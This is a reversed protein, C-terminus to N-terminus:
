ESEESESDSSEIYRSNYKFYRITSFVMLIAWGYAVNGVNMSLLLIFILVDLTLFGTFCCAFFLVLKLIYSILGYDQIGSVVAHEEGWSDIGKGLWTDSDSLDLYKFTDLIINVRSAASNDTEKVLETDGTMAVNFVSIARNLPEYDIYPVIMYFLFGAIFIFFAYQKRMFYLSLIGLGVFATGSGMSLMTYLFAIIPWKYEAYLEKLGLIRRYKYETLKLLAYFYVTLIRAAHSPEIALSNLRFLALFDQGMLNVFPMYRLGVLLCAQQLVLCVAYGYIVFKVVQIFGDLTFARNVYVLNYYLSFMSLFLLTYYFTSMRPMGFQLVSVGVTVVWFLLGLFLAKSPYPSRWLLLLPTAAMYMVKLTSVAWGEIFLLQVSMLVLTFVAIKGDTSYKREFM